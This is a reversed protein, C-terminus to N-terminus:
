KSLFVKYSNKKDSWNGIITNGNYDAKISGKKLDSNKIENLILKEDELTGELYIGIGYKEYTYEAKLDNEFDFNLVMIVKEDAIKGEFLQPLSNSNFDGIFDESLGFLSRGFSNLYKKFYKLKFRTVTTFGNFKQNKSFCNEGDIFINNNKIYFDTLNDNEYCSIIDNFYNREISDLKLLEKKFNAVRKIKAIRYFAQYGQETFLDKLQFLEGTGSNFNYYKVWYSCTAGCSSENFQISLAKKSNNHIKYDISVKGGYITGNDFSIKKFINNIGKSKVVELESLQLLLNIKREIKPHLSDEIIPFSFENKLKESKIKFYNSQSISILSYTIILISIIHKM